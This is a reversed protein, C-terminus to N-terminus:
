TAASVQAIGANGGGTITGMNLYMLGRDSTDWDTFGIGTCDKLLIRHTASGMGAPIVFATTMTFGAADNIFMCNDFLIYRDFGASDVVEVFGCGAHGAYMTFICNKFIIRKADTDLRLGMMGTAAAITDVGITCNVFTCEEAGYLALSAGGDVAQTAHGGGAFHINEFYNRGGTVRVNLLSTADAVGQFIYFNKFICGTATIDLLPSAGTLTSTQFIRARQAVMTPAAIGIIHTYNKDWTLAAALNNGSSGAIYFLTDHQNAVMLAEAAEIGALANTPSLGDNSDSGDAPDVFYYKADKHFPLGYLAPLGGLHFLMDSFTTM